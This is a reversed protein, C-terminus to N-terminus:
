LGGIQPDLAVSRVGLRVWHETAYGLGDGM